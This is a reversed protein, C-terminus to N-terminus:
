NLIYQLMLFANPFRDFLWDLITFNYIFTNYKPTVLSVSIRCFDSSNKKNIITINGIFNSNKEDPVLIEINIIFPGAEPTVNLGQLHSFTWNGWDPYEIIEWDLLSGPEGINSLSLNFLIISRTYRENWSFDGTCELDSQGYSGIFIDDLYTSSGDVGLYQFGILVNTEDYYESLDIHTGYTTDIWDDFSFNGVLSENWLPLWSDGNDLSILLNLDYNDYPEVGWYYSHLWWFSLYFNRYNSFNLPPTILWEDQIDTFNEDYDCMACYNGSHSSENIQWTENSNYIVHTWGTPPFIGDEFDEFLIFNVEEGSNSAVGMVANLCIILNVILFYSGVKKACFNNFIYKM